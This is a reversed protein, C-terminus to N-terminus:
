FMRLKSDIDKWSLKHSECESMNLFGSVMDTLFHNFVEATSDNALNMCQFLQTSQDSDYSTIHSQLDSPSEIDFHSPGNNSNQNGSGSNM